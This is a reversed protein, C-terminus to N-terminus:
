DDDAEMATDIDKLAADLAQLSPFDYFVSDWAPSDRVGRAAKLLAAHESPAPQARWDEVRKMIRQASKGHLPCGDHTRCGCRRTELGETAPEELEADLLAKVARVLRIVREGGKVNEPHRLPWDLMAADHAELLERMLDDTM